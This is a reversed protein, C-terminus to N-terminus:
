KYHRVYREQDTCFFARKGIGFWEAAVGRRASPRGAFKRNRLLQASLGGSVCARTHELNHGFVFPTVAAAGETCVALHRIDDQAM